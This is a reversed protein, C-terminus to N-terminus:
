SWSPNWNPILQASNNAVTFNNTILELKSELKSDQQSNVVTFNNTILELKSELKSDLQSNAVTFNNTILELKSELKSDLQSNAVTFNNIILELKSELKSDLQSNAVTFNNVLHVNNSELQILKEQVAQLQITINDISNEIESRPICCKCGKGKCGYDSVRGSCVNAKVGCSGGLLSCGITVKCKSGG